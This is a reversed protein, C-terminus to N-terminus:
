HSSRVLRVWDARGQANTFEQLDIRVNEIPPSGGWEIRARTHM